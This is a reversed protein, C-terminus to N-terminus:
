TINVGPYLTSFWIRGGRAHNDHSFIISKIIRPYNKSIKLVYGVCVCVGGPAWWDNACENSFYTRQSM